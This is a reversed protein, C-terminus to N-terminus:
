QTLWWIILILALLALLFAIDKTPFHKQTTSKKTPETKDRPETHKLHLAEQKERLKYRKMRALARKTLENRKKQEINLQELWKQTYQFDPHSDRNKWKNQKEKGPKIRDKIKGTAEEIWAISSGLLFSAQEPTKEVPVDNLGLGEPIQEDRVDDVGRVLFTRPRLHKECFWRGCLECQFLKKESFDRDRVSCEVCTGIHSGADPEIVQEGFLM